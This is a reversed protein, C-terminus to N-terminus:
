EPLNLVRRKIGDKLLAVNFNMLLGIPWSGLRLYTLIQAEHIKDLKEVAKLELVVRRDILFDLRYGCDLAIGKYVIPLSVQMEFPIGRLTFEHALCNAYSSELLGPGLICHVEIAAGIIAETLENLEM